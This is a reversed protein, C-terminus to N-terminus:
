KKVIRFRYNGSTETSTGITDLYLVGKHDKDVEPLVPLISALEAVKVDFHDPTGLRVVIRGSKISVTGNDAFKILSIEIKYQEILQTLLLIHDFVKDNDTELKEGLVAQSFSIGDVRCIGEMKETSTEALIGERDFYLYSDMYKICGIIAKEYIVVEVKNLGKINIKYDSAFPVQKKRGLRNNVYCMFTNDTEKGTFISKIVEEDSFFHNGTVEVEEIKSTYIIGAGAAAALLLVLLIIFLIKHRKIFGPM